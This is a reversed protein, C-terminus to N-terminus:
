ASGERPWVTIDRDRHWDNPDPESCIVKVRDMLGYRRLGDLVLAIVTDRHAVWIREIVREDGVNRTHRGYQDGVKNWVQEDFADRQEDPECTDCCQVLSFIELVSPDSDLWAGPVEPLGKAWQLWASSDVECRVHTAAQGLPPDEGRRLASYGLVSPVLAGVQDIPPVRWERAAASAVFEEPLM